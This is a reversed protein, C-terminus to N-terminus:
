LIVQVIMVLGQRRSAPRRLGMLGAVVNVREATHGQRKNHPARASHAQAPHVAAPHLVQRSSTVAKAATQSLLV